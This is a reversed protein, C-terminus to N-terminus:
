KERALEVERMVMNGTIGRGQFEKIALNTKDEMNIAKYVFASGGRGLPVKKGNEYVYEWKLAVEDRQMQKFHSEYGGQICRDYFRQRQAESSFVLTFTNFEKFEKDKTATV